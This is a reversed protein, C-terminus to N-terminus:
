HGHLSAKPSHLSIAVVIWATYAVASDEWAHLFLAAISIGLFVLFISFQFNFISFEESHIRDDSRFDEMNWKGNKMGLRRLVLLILVVFLGFGLFGLEVGVQLYWNETLMPCRCIKGIPQVQMDGVFVCLEPRDNAWSADSGAPLEVCVDSVANSAPGAAGLGLGFPHALMTQLAVMPRQLHGSNSVSRLWIGPAVIMLASFVLIGLAVAIMSIRRVLPERWHFAAFTILIATAAVWAARSFTLFLAVGLIVITSIATRQGSMARERVWTVVAFSLPTLMWMGLQNPGSMVSQMRRIGLESIYQFAALPGSPVYLSHLDSYGLRTFFSAPLFLSALGYAVIIIAIIPIVRLVNGIFKESWPIRRLVLFAVLPLFDYKFGLAFSYATLQLSYASVLVALLLLAIICWDIADVRRGLDKTRLGLDKRGFECSLELCSVLFVIGLLIEKWLALVTLPAHGPGVVVKTLVTVLFAHFPLLTLLILTLRERTVQLM